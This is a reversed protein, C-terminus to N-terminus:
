RRRATPAAARRLRPTDVKSRGRWALVALAIRLSPLCHPLCPIHSILARGERYGEPNILQFRGRFSASSSEASWEDLHDEGRRAAALCCCTPYGLARGLIFAHRGPLADIRLVRRAAAPSRAVSFFGDRDVAASLRSRRAWAKLDRASVSRLESRIAGRVGAILQALDTRFSIPLGAPVDDLRM